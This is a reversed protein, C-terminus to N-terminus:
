YTGDSTLEFFPKDGAANAAVYIDFVNASSVPYFYLRYSTNAYIIEHGTGVACNFYMDVMKGNYDAAVLPNQHGVADAASGFAWGNFSAQQCAYPHFDSEKYLYPVNPLSSLNGDTNFQVKIHIGVVATDSATLTGISFGPQNKYDGPDLILFTVDTGDSHFYHIPTGSADTQSAIVSSPVVPAPDPPVPTTDSTTSAVPDTTTAPEAVIAAPAPDPTTAAPAQAVAVDAVGSVPGGGGGGVVPGNSSEPFINKPALLTTSASTGVDTSTGLVVGQPVTKKPIIALVVASGQSSGLLEKKDQASLGNLSSGYLKNAIDLTKADAQAPSPPQATITITDAFFQLAGVAVKAVAALVVVSTQITTTFGVKVVTAAPDGVAFLAQQTKYGLSSDPPTFCDGGSSANVSQLGSMEGNIDALIQTSANALYDNTFSHGPFTDNPNAPALDANSPLLAFHLTRLTALLADGSSNIYKGGGATYTAPTAVNYVAVSERPEGHSLLYNYMSNSYLAGQSHGVLLLKRTTVEPYVQMLITNLDFNSISGNFLQATSEALDGAGALHTQNYGLKFSVSENNFQGGTQKNFDFNLKNKNVEAQPETDFVGNVYVVTYGQASCTPTAALAFAPSFLLFFGLIFATKNM